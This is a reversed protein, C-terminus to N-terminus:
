ITSLSGEHSLPVFTDNGVYQLELATNQGGSIYGATGVITSALSSAVSDYTYIQNGYTCAVLKTGDASSAIRDWYQGSASLTWTIGSDSSTYIEEDGYACAALKTGDASSALSQWARSIGRPTWTLGSDTSTYIQGNVVCAVLKVGDASSAVATWERNTERPAWTVGSDTSTYIQGNSVCAVLKTGDASSAIGNWQRSADRAIWTVGSNTSTYIGANFACAALKAGDASSCVCQWFLSLSNTQGTWTLGSNTSTYILGGADCAALKVGDSSSAVSWWTRVSDRAIWSRGSDISTYLYGSSDAAALKVGDASSAVSWWSRASDRPVWVGSQNSIKLSNILIAQSARQAIKWGSAGVGNVRVTDGISLSASVPLTLTILGSGNAIYGNNGTMQTNATVVTWPFRYVPNGNWQLAGGVNYLKDAAPTPVAAQGIGVYSGNVTLAGTMTDGAKAVKLADGNTINTQLTNVANARAAAEASLNADSQTKTYVSSADAKTALASDVEAKAYVESANAKANLQSQIGSTVGSLFGFENDLVIGAGIASVDVHAAESSEIAFPVSQVKVRNPFTDGPTLPAPVPSSSIAIEYWAQPALIVQPPLPVEINFLGELSVDTQGFIPAGLVNGGSVADCFQVRYERVDTLARGESNLLQGRINITQPPDAFAVATGITLALLFVTSLTLMTLPPASRKM